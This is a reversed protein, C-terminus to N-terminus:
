ERDGKFLLMKRVGIILFLIGVALFLFVGGLSTAEGVFEDKTLIGKQLTVGQIEDSKMLTDGKQIGAITYEQPDEPSSTTYAIKQKYAGYPDTEYATREMKIKPLDDDQSLYYNNKSDGAKFSRTTVIWGDKLDNEDYDDFLTTKDIMILFASDVYFEGLTTPAVLYTSGMGEYNFGFNGKETRDIMEVRWEWDVMGDEDVGVDKFTWVEREAVVGPLKVGTLPDEIPESTKLTGSVMVLKGENEPNIKGDEVVIANQLEDVAGPTLFIAKGAIYVTFIGILIFIIGKAKRM